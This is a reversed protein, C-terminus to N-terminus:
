VKRNICQRVKKRLRPMDPVWALFPILDVGDPVFWQKRAMDFKAGMEKVRNKQEFPVVLYTKM